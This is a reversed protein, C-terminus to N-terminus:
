HGSQIRELEQRNLDETTAPKRPGSAPASSGSVASPAAVVSLALARTYTIEIQDGVKVKKLNNPDRVRVETVDGGATRLLVSPKDPNIADITAVTTVERTGVAGPKEGPKATTLGEEMSTGPTVEGAPRVQFAIAERYNVQVRDGVKLQPLNKVRQDVQVTVTSGDERKLVVTRKDMDVAEVIASASVIRESRGSPMATRSQSQAAAEGILAAAMAAVFVLPLSRNM